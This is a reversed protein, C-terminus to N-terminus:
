DITGVRFRRGTEAILMLDDGHLVYLDCRRSGGDFDVCVSGDEVVEYVGSFARGGHYTYVYQGDMGYSAVSLDMFSVEAGVIREAVEERTMLQDWPRINWDAAAVPAGILILCALLKRM